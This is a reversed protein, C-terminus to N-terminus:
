QDDRNETNQQSWVIKGHGTADLIRDLSSIKQKMGTIGNRFQVPFDNVQDVLLDAFSNAATFAPIALRIADDARLQSRLPSRRIAWSWSRVIALPYGGSEPEGHAAASRLGGGRAAQDM